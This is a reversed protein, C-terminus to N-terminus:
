KQDTAQKILEIIGIKLIDIISETFDETVWFVETFESKENVERQYWTEGNFWKGDAMNSEVTFLNHTYDNRTKFLWKKKVEDDKKNPWDSIRQGNKYREIMINNFLRRSVSGPLVEEIFRYFSNKVGYIKHYEMYLAESNKLFSQSELNDKIRELSNNVEDSYKNSTLWSPYFIWGIVPQGLQDFCTLILYTILGPYMYVQLFNDAYNKKAILDQALLIRNHVKIIRSPLSNNWLEKKKKESNKKQIQEECEDVLSNMMKIFDSEDVFGVFSKDYIAKFKQDREESM